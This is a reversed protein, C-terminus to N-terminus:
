FYVSQKQVLLTDALREAEEKAALEVAEKEHYATTKLDKTTRRVGTTYPGCGCMYFNTIPVIDTRASFPKKNGVKSSVKKEPKGRFFCFQAFAAEFCKLLM